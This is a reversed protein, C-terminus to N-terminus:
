GTSRPARWSPMTRWRARSGIPRTACRGSSIPSRPVCNRSARISVSCRRPNSPLQARLTVHQESLRRMLESNVIDSFEVPGGSKLAERILRAKAEADSKQARASALQANYEGLQQNSLSTNNTGIFLNTKSRYQEVKAEAEAVKKRLTEIEGSLWTGASRTQDQKAAQQLVLYREAIANTSARRLSPM